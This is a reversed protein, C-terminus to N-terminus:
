NEYHNSLLRNVVRSTGKGDVLTMGRVKLKKRYGLNDLLLEVQSIFLDNKGLMQQNAILICGADGLATLIKNQNEAISFTITPVGLCARELSSVGAAGIAFEHQAIFTAMDDIYAYVKVTPNALSLEKLKSYTYNHAALVISLTIDKRKLSLIEEVVRLTLEAVDGGGLFVLISSSKLEQKAAIQIGRISQYNKALLAYDSGFLLQNNSLGLTGYMSQNANLNQNIIFDVNLRRHAMDDILILKQCASSILDLWEQDISYHDIVLNIEDKTYEQMSTLTQEADKKMDCGLWSLHNNTISSKEDESLEPLWIIRKDSSFKIRKIESSYRCIFRSKIGRVLLEEALNLCRSFHGLGIQKSFDVRFLFIKM